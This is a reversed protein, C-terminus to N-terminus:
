RISNSSFHEPLLDRHGEPARVILASHALARLLLLMSSAADDTETRSASPLMFGPACAGPNCFLFKHLGRLPRYSNRNVNIGIM